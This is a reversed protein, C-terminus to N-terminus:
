DRPSPSTYLLCVTARNSKRGFVIVRRKAHSVGYFRADPISVHKGTKRRGSKTTFRVIGHSVGQREAYGASVYDSGIRAIGHIQDATVDPEFKDFAAGADGFLPDSADPGSGPLAFTSTAHFVALLAGLLAFLKCM